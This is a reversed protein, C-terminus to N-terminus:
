PTTINSMKKPWPWPVFISRKGLAILECVVGAGARSLVVSAMKYLDPIGEEILGLSLYFEGNLPRYEGEFKKGVQHVVFYKKSLQPLAERVKENLLRSGNGGGTVFLIPRRVTKLEVGKFLTCRIKQDRCERRLPYGSVVVKQSPFFDRSSEFTIFVREAFLAGIRNALGARSTQEHLYIKKRGLWAALIVPISVFGGTSFIM